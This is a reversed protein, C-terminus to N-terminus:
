LEPGRLSERTAKDGYFLVRGDPHLVFGYTNSYGWVASNFQKDLSGDSQLRAVGVRPIGDVRDFSGSLYIKGDARSAVSKISAEAQFEGANFSDLSGNPLFRAVGSRRQDDVYRPGTVILKGSRQLALSSSIIFVGLPDYYFSHKPYGRVPYGYSNYRYLQSKAVVIDDNPMVM